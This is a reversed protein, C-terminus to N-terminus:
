KKTHEDFFQKIRAYSNSIMECDVLHVIYKIGLDLFSSIKEESTSITGPYKGSDIIKNTLLRLYDQVKPHEVDGPMGIAKSLDFLGIFIIDIEEVKLIKDINQIADEGEINIAILTNENSSDTLKTSNNISYNGARTFPSFGREGQPPYKCYKVIKNVDNISKVNPIQICHVGIDLAKLIDSENISGIRMVPSVGRSECVIAMQQATEFSIPGHESDIIVYDLAKSSFAPAWRAGEIFNIMTGFVRGGENLKNKIDQPKM